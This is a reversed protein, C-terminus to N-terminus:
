SVTKSNGKSRRRILGLGLLGGALMGYTSPEPVASVAAVTFRNGATGLSASGGPGGGDIGVDTIVALASTAAFTTSDSGNNLAIIPPVATGGCSGPGAASFTGNRCGDTIATVSGGGSVVAGSLFVSEGTYSAGQLRYGLVYDLFQNNLATVAVLYDFGISTASVNQPVITINGPAIATAANPVSFATFSFATSTGITCGAAGLGIYSALTGTVCTAAQAQAAGLILLAGLLLKKM